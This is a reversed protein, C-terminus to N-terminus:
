NSASSEEEGRQAEEGKEVRAKREKRKRRQRHSSSGRAAGSRIEGAEELRTREKEEDV